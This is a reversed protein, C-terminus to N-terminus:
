CKKSLGFFSVLWDFLIMLHLKFPFFLFFLLNYEGLEALVYYDSFVASTSHPRETMDSKHGCPSCGGPEETWPTKWALISSHATMEEELPDEGGLSPVWTEEMKLGIRQRQAVQSVHAVRWSFPFTARPFCHPWPTHRPGCSHSPPGPAPLQSGCLTIGPGPFSVSDAKNSKLIPQFWSIWKKRGTERM